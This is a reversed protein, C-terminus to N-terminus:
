TIEDTLEKFLQAQLATLQTDSLHRPTPSTLEAALKINAPQNHMIFIKNALRLAELPEHTIFIVTKENLLNATLTQLKYRTIADLASFPEDMLVISTDQMLTRALAVRQRMGGSLQQPYLHMADSLGVDALLKAAQQRFKKNQATSFHKLKCVLMVNDLVNLWPLLSDSQSMYAIHESLSTQNELVIKGTYNATAPLLNAILRLLCSKGIGSTGLLAVWQGTQVTLNINSFIIRKAFALTANKIHLTTM